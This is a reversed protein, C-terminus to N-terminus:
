RNFQYITTSHYPRNPGFIYSPFNDHHITDPYFQTELCMGTRPAYVANEKGKDNGICNGTYLQVGPLDTFVTMTRGSEPETVKAFERLTGDYNDIVYNHDYGKVMKMQEFDAGLDQAITKKKTFDLPTGIVSVIEGTPIAGPVIKTYNSAKLELEHDIISGSNHGKLNFYSHNTMNIITDKDSTVHYELKIENEETLTYTVSFDRNGPLGLEGDKLSITFEVANDKEKADWLMKNMGNPICTHLNNGGDNDDLKYTVGDIEATAGGIRNASPGITSGFFSLNEYFTDVDPCCLAIDKVEGNKDPVFIDKLIAGFNMVTISMGNKNSMTYTYVDKGERTKGFVEKKM